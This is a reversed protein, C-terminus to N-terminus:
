DAFFITTVSRHFYDALRKKYIDKPVRDGGEYMAITSVSVGIADAVEKQTKNAKTRLDFLRAGIKKPDM